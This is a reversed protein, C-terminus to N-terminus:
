EEEEEEEEEQEEEEEEEEDEAKGKEVGEKIGEAKGKEVGEEFNKEMSSSMDRLGKLNNEYLNRESKDFNLVNIVDLAKKVDSDQLNQKQNDLLDYKTLFACWIDIKTKMKATLKYFDDDIGKSFKRLEITHLELDDFHRQYTELEMMKFINHYKEGAIYDSDLIHIGIVKNLESYSKGSERQAKYMKSWYFLARKDYGAKNHLQIEIDFKKGDLSEAKIDLISLKDKVCDQSNYPNLLKLDQVQDEERVISNVLSILLDKNEESGFIKKFAIDVTPNIRIM